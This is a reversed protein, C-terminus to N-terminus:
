GDVLPTSGNQYQCHYENEEHDCACEPEDVNGPRDLSPLTVNYGDKNYKQMKNHLFECVEDSGARQTKDIVLMHHLIFDLFETLYNAEGDIRSIARKNYKVRLAVARKLFFGSSVSHGFQQTVNIFFSDTNWFRSAHGMDGENMRVCQFRRLAGPGRIAWTLLMLFVCGLAWIDAKRSVGPGEKMQEPAAYSPSMKGKGPQLSRSALTHFKTLGFDALKLKGLDGDLKKETFRLINAPKIDRHIGYNDKWDQNPKDGKRRVAPKVNHIGRLGEAIGACQKAIWRILLPSANTPSAFLESPHKKMLDGLSGGEAWPFLFSLESGCQFTAFLEIVHDGPPTKRLAYLEREFEDQDSSHLVKLAFVKHGIFRHHDPHIEVKYVDAHGSKENIHHRSTWPMITEAHLEYEAPQKDRTMSIIPVNIHWQERYFQSIFSKETSPFHRTEKGRSARKLPRLVGDDGRIFPFDRDCVKAEYFGGLLDLRGTLVLIAFLIHSSREANFDDDTQGCVYDTYKQLHSQDVRGKLEEYVVPRSCLRRLEGLPIWDKTRDRYHKVAAATLDDALSQIQVEDPRYTEPGGLSGETGVGLLSLQQLGKELPGSTSDERFRRGYDDIRSSLDSRNSLSRSRNLGTPYDGPLGLCESASKPGRLQEMGEDVLKRAIVPDSISISLKPQAMPPQEPSM